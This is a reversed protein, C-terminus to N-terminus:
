FLFGYVKSKKEQKISEYEDYIMENTIVMNPHESQLQELRSTAENINSL